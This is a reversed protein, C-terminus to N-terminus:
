ISKIQKLIDNISDNFVLTAYKDYSTKTKNILILNKGNFYQIMGAAPYVTLSTGAVILCDAESIDRIAKYM